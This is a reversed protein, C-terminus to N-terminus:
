RVSPMWYQLAKVFYWWMMVMTGAQALVVPDASSQAIIFVDGDAVSGTLNITLGASLSGNFFYQLNYNEAGLNVPQGTGNFIEIAKNNSSGEIYESIFLESQAYINSGAGMMLTLLLAHLYHKMLFEPLIPLNFIRACTLV